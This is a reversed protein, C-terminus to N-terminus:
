PSARPLAHLPTRTSRDKRSICKGHNRGRGVADRTLQSRLLVKPAIRVGSSSECNPVISFFRPMTLDLRPLISAPLILKPHHLQPHLEPNSSTLIKQRSSNAHYNHTGHTFYIQIQFKSFHIAPNLNFM